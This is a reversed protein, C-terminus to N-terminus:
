AKLHKKTTLTGLIGTLFGTILFSALLFIYFNMGPIQAFATDGLGVFKIFDGYNRVIYAVATEYLYVIIGYSSLAAIIGLIIGELVFPFEIFFNTAGIYRM